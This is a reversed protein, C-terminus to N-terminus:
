IYSGDAVALLTGEAIAKTIWSTGGTVKLDDWLWTHGWGKLVNIFNKAPEPQDICTTVLCVKWVGPTVKEVTAAEGEMQGSRSMQHRV